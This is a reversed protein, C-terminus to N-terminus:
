QLYDLDLHGEDLVFLGPLAPAGTIQVWNIHGAPTVSAVAAYIEADTVAGVAQSGDGWGIAGMGYGGLPSGYGSQGNVASSAGGAGPATGRAITVFAQFPLALSGYAGAVGYGMAGTGWGGTDAVNSPRFVTPTNGSLDQLVEIIAARTNRPRIIERQIRAAYALDPENLRRPFSTLFDIAAGDLWVDTSTTIRTQLEVYGLTSYLDAWAVGLGSLVAALIPADDPFWNRPLAARLRSVFDAQDGVM